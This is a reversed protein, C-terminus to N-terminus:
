EGHRSLIKKAEKRYKKILKNLIALDEEEQEAKNKAAVKDAWRNFVSQDFKHFLSLPPYLRIERQREAGEETGDDERLSVIAKVYVSEQRKGNELDVWYAQDRFSVAGYGRHMYLSSGNDPQFLRGKYEIDHQIARMVPCVSHFYMMAHNDMERAKKLHDVINGGELKATYEAFVEDRRKIEAATPM